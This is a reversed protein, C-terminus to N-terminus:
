VPEVVREGFVARRGDHHELADLHVHQLLPPEVQGVVNQLMGIPHHGAEVITLVLGAVPDRGADDLRDFIREHAHDAVRRAPQDVASRGVVHIDLRHDGRRGAGAGEQLDVGVGPPEVEVVAVGGGRLPGAHLEHDGGVGVRGAAEVDHPAADELGAAGAEFGAVDGVGARNLRKPAAGIIALDLVVRQPALKAIYRVKGDVRVGIADTFGADVSTITPIQILTKGSKWSLFKATDLATGGGFGVIVSGPVGKSAMEELRSLEMDWASVLREPSPVRSSISSWPPDHAAITFSKAAGLVDVASEEVLHFPAGVMIDTM